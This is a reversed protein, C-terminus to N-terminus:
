AKNAIKAYQARLVQMLSKGVNESGTYPVYHKFMRPSSAINDVAVQIVFVGANELDEVACRVHKESESGSYGSACPSGDSLVVMIKSSGKGKKLMEGSEVIAYGDVNQSRGHIGFVNNIDLPKKTPDHYRILELSKSSVQQATHGYLYVNINPRDKFALFMGLAAIQANVVKSGCMSGSEDILLFLDMSYEKAPEEDMFVNRNFGISYVEDEDLDGNDLEYSEKTATFKSDLFSLDKAFTNSLKKAKNYIGKNFPMPEADYIITDTVTIVDCGKGKGTDRTTSKSSFTAGRSGRRDDRTPKTVSAKGEEGKEGMEGSDGGPMGSMAEGIAEEMETMDGESLSLGPAIGKGGGPTSAKGASSPFLKRLRLAKQFCEEYTSPRTKIIDDAKDYDESHKSRYEEIADNYYDRIYEQPLLTQIQIYTLLANDKDFPIDKRKPEGYEDESEETLRGEIMKQMSGFQTWGYYKLATDFYGVYGPYEHLLEKEIRHDEVINFLKALLQDGNFVDQTFDPVREIAGFRNMQEKVKGESLLRKAHGPITWKLHATEHLLDSFYVDIRENKDLRHDFMSAISVYMNRGDYTVASGKRHIKVRPLMGSIFQVIGKAQAGFTELLKKDNANIDKIWYLCGEFNEAREIADGDLTLLPEEDDFIPVYHVSPVGYTNPVFFEEMEEKPSPIESSRDDFIEEGKFLHSYSDDSIAGWGGWGSFGSRREGKGKSWFKM